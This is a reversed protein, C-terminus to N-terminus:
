GRKEYDAMEKRLREIGLRYRSKVTSLSCGQMDAIEQFKLEERIRLLIVERQELPVQQLIENIFLETELEDLTKKECLMDEPLEVRKERERKRLYDRCLNRATILLYGKLNKYQYRNAHRIFRFFVEQSIDCSDTENATLYLCFRYVDDYYREILSGLAERNGSQIRRILERDTM